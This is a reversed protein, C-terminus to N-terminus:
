HRVIAIRNSLMHIVKYYITTGDASENWIAACRTWNPNAAQYEPSAQMLATWVQKEAGTHVPLVAFQTNQQSALYRYQMRKTSSPNFKVMGTAVQVDPMIPLIGFNEQTPTYKNGNVWSIVPGGEVLDQVAVMSAQLDNKLWIDLHGIYHQGTRNFTGVQLLTLEM